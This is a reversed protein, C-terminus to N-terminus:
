IDNVKVFFVLKQFYDKIVKIEEHNLINKKIIFM